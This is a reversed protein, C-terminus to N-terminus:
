TCKLSKLLLSLYFFFRRFCFGVKLLCVSRFVNLITWKECYHESLTEPVSNLEIKKKEDHKKERRRQTGMKNWKCQKICKLEISLACLNDNTNAGIWKDRKKYSYVNIFLFFNNSKERKRSIESSKEKTESKKIYEM